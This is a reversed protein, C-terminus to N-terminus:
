LAARLQQKSEHNVTELTTDTQTLASYLASWDRRDIRSLAVNQEFILVPPWNLFWLGPFLKQWLM